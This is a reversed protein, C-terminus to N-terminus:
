QLKKLLERAEPLGGDAAIKVYKKAEAVDKEVGLGNLLCKGFELCSPLHGTEAAQKFYYAAWEFDKRIVYCEFTHEEDRFDFGVLHRKAVEYFVEPNQTYNIVHQLAIVAERDDKFPTDKAYILALNSKAGYFDMDDNKAARKYLELAKDLNKEVGFGNFYCDGLRKMGAPNCLAVSKEFYTVAKEYSQEVGEGNFYIEGMRLFSDRNRDKGGKEYWELAVALNKEVVKGEYYLDGLKNAAFLYNKDAAKKLWILGQEPDTGKFKGDFDLAFGEILVKSLEYEAEKNGASAAKKVWYFAKDFDVDISASGESYLEYVELMAEENGKEAAKLFWVLAEKKNSFRLGVGCKLCHGFWYQAETHGQEAAQELWYVARKEEDEGDDVIGRYYDMGLDFQAQVDGSNARSKLEDTEDDPEGSEWIRLFHEAPEYGSKASKEMFDLWKDEDADESFLILAYEYEGIREGQEAAYKLLERGRAEDKETGTGYTYFTGLRASAYAGGNKAAIKYLAFAKEYDHPIEESLSYLDAAHWAACADGCAAAREYWYLAKGYDVKVGCGANSYVDGLTRMSETNGRMASSLSYLFALEDERDIYDEKEDYDDKFDDYTYGM